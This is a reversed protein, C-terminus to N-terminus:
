QALHTEIWPDCCDFARAERHDKRAAVCAEADEHKMFVGLVLTETPLERGWGDWGGARVRVLYIVKGSPM